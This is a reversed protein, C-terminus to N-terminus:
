TSLTLKCGRVFAGATGGATTTAVTVTPTGGTLGAPNGTMQDVNTGAPFTVTWVGGAVGTVQCDPAVNLDNIAKRVQASTGAFPITATTGTLTNATVTLTFTGGTAGGGITVTQVEASKGDTVVNAGIYANVISRDALVTADYDRLWRMALGNYSQQVGFTAGDPVVPAAMACAFAAKHFVYASKPDIAQSLYAPMGAITTVRADIIASPTQGTSDYRNFQDFSMITEEVDSGMVIVRDALPVFQKNLYNRAKIFATAPRSTSIAANDISLQAATPYTAGEIAAAVQNEMERAVARVQPQLIQTGFDKIDLTLEADTVRVASYVDNSLKIDVGVENIDDLVITGTSRLGRTHADLRAPVRLTVTDGFAGKFDAIGYNWVLGPLVIERELIGLAASAIVTPKLYANAM